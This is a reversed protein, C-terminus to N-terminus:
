GGDHLVLGWLDSDDFVGEHLLSWGLRRYLRPAPRDDHYTTLLARDHPLDLLLADHLATALGRGHWRPDVALEIFEFHGGLWEDVIARQARDAVRDSWWQGRDGTYGYGFGALEGGISVTVCRFGDRTTHTALQENRFHAVSEETEDYGPACFAARYVETLAATTAAAQEGDLRRVVPREDGLEYTWGERWAFPRSVAAQLPRGTLLHDLAVRTAVHGVLLVRQGARDHLLEDLLESMAATTERYSQGGPFPTDVRDRRERHVVDVPAGNLDGYNVERLRPDRVVPVDAGAFAIDVTQVARALDSTLVVDLGDDRRRRGLERANEHGASSLEGPLWGTAIGNENDLTTAHTEYVVQVPV